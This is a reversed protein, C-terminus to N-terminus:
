SDATGLWANLVAEAEADDNVFRILQGERQYLGAEGGLTHAVSDELGIVLLRAPAKAHIAKGLSRIQGLAGAPLHQSPRLDLVLEAPHDLAEFRFSAVRMTRHLDRWNWPDSATFRLVRQEPSDWEVNVPM